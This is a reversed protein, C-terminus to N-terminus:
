VNYYEDKPSIYYDERVKGNATKISQRIGNIESSWPGHQNYLYATNYIDVVSITSFNQSCEPM